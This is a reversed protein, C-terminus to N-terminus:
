GKLVAVGRHHLKPLHCRRKKVAGNCRRVLKAVPLPDAFHSLLERRKAPSSSRYTSVLVAMAFVEPCELLEPETKKMQDYTALASDPLCGRVLGKFFRAEAKEGDTLYPNQKVRECCRRMEVLRTLLNLMTKMFRATYEHRYLGGPQDIM